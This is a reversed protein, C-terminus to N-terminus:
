GARSARVAELASAHREQRTKPTPRQGNRSAGGQKTFVSSTGADGDALNAIRKAEDLEAQLESMQTALAGAKHAYYASFDDHMPNEAKLAMLTGDQQLGEFDPNESLFRDRISANDRETLVKGFENTAAGLVEEKTTAATLGVIDKLLAAAKGPADDDAVFDLKDFSALAEALATGAESTQAGGDNGGGSQQAQMSLQNILQQTQNRLAGVEAGQDTLKRELEGYGKELDEASKFKGAYVKGGQGNQTGEDPPNGQDSGGDHVSMSGSQVVGDKGPM